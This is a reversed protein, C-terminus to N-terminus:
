PNQNVASEALSSLVLLMCTFYGYTTTVRLCWRQEWMEQAEQSFDGTTSQTLRPDWSMSNPNRLWGVPELMLRHGVWGFSSTGPIRLFSKEGGRVKFKFARSAGTSVPSFFSPGRPSLWYPPSLTFIDLHSVIQPWVRMDFWVQAVWIKKTYLGVRTSIESM